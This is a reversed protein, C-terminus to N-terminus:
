MTSAATSVSDVDIPDDEYNVKILEEAHDTVCKEHLKRYKQFAEEGVFPSEGGSPNSPDLGFWDGKTGHRHALHAEFINGYIPVSRVKLLTLFTTGTKFEGRSFTLICPEKQGHVDVIFNLHECFSCEYAVNEPCPQTRNAFDRARIALRSKQDFSRERIASLEGKMELPNWLCFEVFFFIPTFTFPQSMAPQVNGKEDRVVDMLLTNDPVLITAGVGFADRLKQDSLSQIVKIRPPRVYQKVVDLSTDGEVKLYNPIVLDQKPKTLDTSM